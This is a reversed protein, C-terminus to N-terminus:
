RERKRKRERGEGLLLGVTFLFPFSLQLLYRHDPPRTLLHLDGSSGSICAPGLGLGERTGRGFVAAVTIECVCM